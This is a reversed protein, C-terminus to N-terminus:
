LKLLLIEIFIFKKILRIVYNRFLDRTIELKIINLSILYNKFSGPDIFINDRLLKYFVINNMLYM